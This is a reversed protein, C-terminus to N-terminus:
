YLIINAPLPNVSNLGDNKDKLERGTHYYLFSM